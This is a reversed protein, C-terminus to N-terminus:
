HFPLFCDRGIAFTDEISSPLIYTHYSVILSIESYGGAWGVIMHPARIAADTNTGIITVGVLEHRIIVQNYAIVSQDPHYSGRVRGFLFGPLTPAM